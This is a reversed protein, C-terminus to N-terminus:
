PLAIAAPGAQHERSTAKNVNIKSVTNTLYDVLEAFEDDSGQTGRQVMNVVIQNWGDRDLRKGLVIGAGHYACIRVMTAKGPGDPLKRPDAAALGVPYAALCAMIFPSSVM